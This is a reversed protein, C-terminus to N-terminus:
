SKKEYIFFHVGFFYKKQTFQIKKRCFFVSKEATKEAKGALTRDRGGQGGATGPTNTTTRIQKSLFKANLPM